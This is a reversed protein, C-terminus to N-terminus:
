VNLLFHCTSPLVRDPRLSVGAVLTRLAASSCFLVSTLLSSGAMDGFVFLFIVDLVSGNYRELVSDLSEDMSLWWSWDLSPCLSGAEAISGLLPHCGCTGDSDTRHFSLLINMRTDCM